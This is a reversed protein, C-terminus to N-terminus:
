VLIEQSAFKPMYAMAELFTVTKVAYNKEETHYTYLLGFM